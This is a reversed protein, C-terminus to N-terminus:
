YKWAARGIRINDDIKVIETVNDNSSAARRHCMWRRISLLLRWVVKPAGDVVAMIDGEELNDDFDPFSGLEGGSTRNIV